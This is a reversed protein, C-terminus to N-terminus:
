ALKQSNTSYPCQETNAHACEVVDVVFSAYGLYAVASLYGLVVAGSPDKTPKSREDQVAWLNAQWALIWGAIGIVGVLLICSSNTIWARLTKRRKFITPLMSGQPVLYQRKLSSSSNRRSSPLGANSRYNRLLPEHEDVERLASPHIATKQRNTPRYYLCQLILLVDAICFYIALAIVTPVLGAWIAGVLNAIDGFFWVTLFALSVADANGTRYNEILQPM